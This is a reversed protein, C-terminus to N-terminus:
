PTVKETKDNQANINAGNATLYKMVESRGNAAAMMLPTSGQHVFAAM